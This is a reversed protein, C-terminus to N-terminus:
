CSHLYTYYTLTIYEDHQNLTYKSDFLLTFSMSGNASSTVGVPLSQPDYMALCSYTGASDTSLQPITISSTGNTDALIIQSIDVGPGSWVWQFSGEIEVTCTLNIQSQINNPGLEILENGQTTLPISDQRPTYNVTISIHSFTIIASTAIKYLCSCMYSGETCIEVESLILWRIRNADSFRFTISVARYGDGINDPLVASTVNRLSNDSQSLDTNGLVAHRLPNDVIVTNDGWTLEIEHPFGIGMSPINYFFLNVRRVRTLTNLGITITVDQNWALTSSLDTLSTSERVDDGIPTSSALCSVPSTGSCGRVPLGSGGTAIIRGSDYEVPNPNSQFQLLNSAILHFIITM